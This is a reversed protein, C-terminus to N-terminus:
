FAIKIHKQGRCADMRLAKEKIYGYAYLASEMCLMADPFTGAVLADESFDDVRDTIIATESASM